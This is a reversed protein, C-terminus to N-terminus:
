RNVSFKMNVNYQKEVNFFLRFANDVYLYNIDSIISLPIDIITNHTTDSVTFHENEICIAVNEATISCLTVLPYVEDGYLDNYVGNDIQMSCKFAKDYGINARLEAIAERFDATYKMKQQATTGNNM